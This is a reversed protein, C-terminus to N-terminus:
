RSLNRIAIASGLRSLGNALTLKLLTTTNSRVLFIRVRGGGSIVIQHGSGDLTLEHDNTMTRALTITGDGAFTVTGGGLSAARLNAESCNTVVGGGWAALPLLWLAFVGALTPIQLKRITAFRNSNM